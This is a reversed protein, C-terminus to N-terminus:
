HIIDIHVTQFDHLAVSKEVYYEKLVDNKQQALKRHVVKEFITPL